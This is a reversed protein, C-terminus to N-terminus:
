HSRPPEASTEWRRGAPHMTETVSATLRGKSDYLGSLRAIEDHLMGDLDPWRAAVDNSDLPHILLVEGGPQMILLGRSSWGVMGGIAVADEQLGLPREVLNGYRLSIPQGLPDTADRRLQGVLGYLSLNYLRAGNGVLRLFGHYDEPLTRAITGEVQEFQAPALVPYITHLYAQPAVFPTHCLVVGGDIFTPHAELRNSLLALLKERSM